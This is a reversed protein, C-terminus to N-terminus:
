RTFYARGEVTVTRLTNGEDEGRDISVTNFSLVRNFSALTSLFTSIDDYTGSGILLFTFYEDEDKKEVDDSIPVNNVGLSSITIANDEGIRVLQGLLPVVEPQNPLTEDIRSLNPSIQTYQQQLSSLNSIKETLKDHALTSDDLKRNLETITSLTPSIAFFGLFSLTLFTLVLEAYHQNKESKFKAFLKLKSLYKRKDLDTTFNKKTGLRLGFKM